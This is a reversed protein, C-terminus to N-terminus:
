QPGEDEILGAQAQPIRGTGDVSHFLADRRTVVLAGYNLHCGLNGPEGFLLDRLAPRCWVPGLTDGGGGRHGSLGADFLVPVPLGFGYGPDGHGGQEDGSRLGRGLKCFDCGQCGCCDWARTDVNQCAVAVDGVHRLWSDDSLYQSVPEVLGFQSRSGGHWRPYFDANSGESLRGLQSLDADSARSCTAARPGAM